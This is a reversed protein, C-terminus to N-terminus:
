ETLETQLQANADTASQCLDDVDDAFRDLDDPDYSDRDELYGILQAQADICRDLATAVTGAADSVREQYDLYQQSVVNEDGLQAKEDALETIRDQATTLQGRAQELEATAGTLSEDLQAVQQGLERADAEWGASSEQWRATTVWLYAALASVLLLTALLLWTAVVWGRRAGGRGTAPAPVSSTSLSENPPLSPPLSM